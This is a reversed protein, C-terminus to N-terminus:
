TANNLEEARAELDDLIERIAVLKGNACGLAEEQDVLLLEIDQISQIERDVPLCVETLDDPIPPLVIQRRIETGSASCASLTVLAVMLTPYKM